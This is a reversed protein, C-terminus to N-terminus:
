GRHEPTENARLHTYSVAKSVALVLTAGTSTSETGRKSNSDATSTVLTINDTM